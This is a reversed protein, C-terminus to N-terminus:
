VVSLMLKEGWALSLRVGPALQKKLTEKLDIFHM